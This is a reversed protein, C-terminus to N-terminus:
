GVRPIKFFPLSLWDSKRGEKGPRTGRGEKVRGLIRRM